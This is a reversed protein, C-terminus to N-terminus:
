SASPTSGSAAVEQPKRYQGRLRADRVALRKRYLKEWNVGGGSEGM